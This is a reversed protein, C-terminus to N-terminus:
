PPPWRRPSSPSTSIVGTAIQISDGVTKVHDLMPEILKQLDKNYMSPIGKVTMMLGAM